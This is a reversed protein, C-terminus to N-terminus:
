QIQIKGLGTVQITKQANGSNLWLSVPTAGIVPWPNGNTSDVHVTGNPWFELTQVTLFNVTGNLQQIPGDNNPRTLPDRDAAPYPYPGTSCRVSARTAADDGNAPNTVTGLLEVRRYMGITPCNFRVRIPQNAKVADLRATQLEREVNRMEIGLRQGNVFSTLQPTAIAGVTAVVATTMLLDVLTYGRESGFRRRLSLKFM